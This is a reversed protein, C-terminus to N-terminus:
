QVFRQGIGRTNLDTDMETNCSYSKLPTFSPSIASWVGGRSDPWSRLESSGIRAEGGGWAMTLPSPEWCTFESGTSEEM